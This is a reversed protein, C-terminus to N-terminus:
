LNISQQCSNLIFLDHIVTLAMYYQFDTKIGFNKLNTHALAFVFCSNPFFVCAYNICHDTGFRSINTLQIKKISFYEDDSLEQVRTSKHLPKKWLM